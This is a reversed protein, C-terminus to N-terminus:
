SVTLSSPTPLTRLAASIRDISAAFAPEAPRNLHGHQTGPETVSEVARGAAALTAALILPAPKM